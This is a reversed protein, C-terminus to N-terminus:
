QVKIESTEIMKDEFAKEEEDIIELLGQELTKHVLAELVLVVDEDFVHLDPDDVEIQTEKDESAPPPSQLITQWTHAVRLCGIILPPSAFSSKHLLIILSPPCLESIPLSQPSLLQEIKAFETGSVSRSAGDDDLGAHIGRDGFHGM